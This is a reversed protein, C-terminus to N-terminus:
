ILIVSQFISNIKTIIKFGNTYEDIIKYKGMSSQFICYKKHRM